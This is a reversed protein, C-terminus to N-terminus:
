NGARAKTLETLYTEIVARGGAIYGETFAAINDDTFDDPLSWGTAVSRIAATDDMDKVQDLFSNYESKTRHKFVFEVEAPEDHGPVPVRVIAKFTPAPNLTIKPKAM